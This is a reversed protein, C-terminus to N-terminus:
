RCTSGATPAADHRQVDPRRRPATERSTLFNQFIGDVIIPVRQAPVGEDDCGFSGLGGPLTADATISVLPSAYRLKGRDEPTVFSSGAYAEEMGLVRDLEVPHGISEHVQLEM